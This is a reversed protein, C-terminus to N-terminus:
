IVSIACVVSRPYDCLVLHWREKGCPGGPGWCRSQWDAVRGLFFDPRASQMLHLERPGGAGLLGSLCCLSPATTPPLFACVGHAPIGVDRQNLSLISRVGICPESGQISNNRVVRQWTKGQYQMHKAIDRAVEPEFSWGLYLDTWWTWKCPYFMYLFLSTFKIACRYLKLSCKEEM